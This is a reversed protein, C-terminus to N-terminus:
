LNYQNATNLVKIEDIINDLNSIDTVYMHDKTRECYKDFTQEFYDLIYKPIEDYNDWQGKCFDIKVSNRGLNEEWGCIISFIDTEYYILWYKVEFKDWWAPDEVLIRISEKNDLDMLMMCKSFDEAFKEIRSYIEKVPVDVEEFKKIYKM